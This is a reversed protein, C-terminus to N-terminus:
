LIIVYYNKENYGKKKVERLAVKDRHLVRDSINMTRILNGYSLKIMIFIYEHRM